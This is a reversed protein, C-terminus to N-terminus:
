QRGSYMCYMKGYLLDVCSISLQQQAIDQPTCHRAMYIQRMKNLDLLGVLTSSTVLRPGPTCFPNLLIFRFFYIMNFVIQLKYFQNQKNCIKLFLAQFFGFFNPSYLRLHSTFSLLHFKKSWIFYQIVTTLLVSVFNYIQHRLGKQSEWIGWEVTDLFGLLLKKSNKENIKMRKVHGATAELKKWIKELVILSKQFDAM